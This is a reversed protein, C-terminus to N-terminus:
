QEPSIKKHACSKLTPTDNTKLFMEREGEKLLVASDLM